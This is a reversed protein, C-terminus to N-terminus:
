IGLCKSRETLFKLFLQFSMKFKGRIRKIFIWLTKELTALPHYSLKLDLIHLRQSGTLLHFKNIMLSLSNWIQNNIQTRIDTRLPPVPSPNMAEEQRRPTIKLAKNLLNPVRKILKNTQSGQLKKTKKLSDRKTQIILFILSTVSRKLFHIGSHKINSEVRLYKISRKIRMQLFSTRRKVTTRWESSQCWRTKPLPSKRSIEM